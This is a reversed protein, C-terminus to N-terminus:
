PLMDGLVELARDLTEDRETKLDDPAEVDPEIGEGAISIDDSTFYEAVTLNIASGDPLPVSEQVTGKGFTTEGVLTALDYESLAATVIESASATGGDIMVVTPKPSLADGEANLTEEGTTRGRTTVVDGDEVFLSSALVAEDLRGGGNGGLDLILGEAGERYLREIESRLEGHAGQDFSFFGVYAVKRGDVREIRGQAAPLSVKAREVSIEREPRSTVPDIRLEVETGVEGKIKATAVESPVGALSVGDAALIVDGVDIEADEAPSDPIVTTVELGKPVEKITLGVGKFEGSLARQFEQYEKPDFYHSFRDDYEKRLEDIMGRISGSELEEETVEQFYNAEIFAEAQDRVTPESIREGSLEFYLAIAALTAATGVLLGLVFGTRREPSPEPSPDPM